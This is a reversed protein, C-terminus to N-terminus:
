THLTNHLLDEDKSQAFDKVVGTRVLIKDLTLGAFLVAVADVPLRYRILTWSLIHIGAYIVMFGIIMILDKQRDLVGYRKWGFIVMLIGILMFPWFIGFSLMRSANSIGSSDPSSWFKFYVPIRSITLYIYRVPDDTIFQIGQMLLAQDLAAEDLGLLDPPILDLYTGMEETLIPVFHTGYIPHNGWFFAFGANTNLLVLRNFRAYNFITFPLICLALIGGILIVRVLAKRRLTWFLWVILFFAPIMFLQRLLIAASLCFGLALTYFWIKNRVIGLNVEGQINERLVIAFYICALIATIYFPETM